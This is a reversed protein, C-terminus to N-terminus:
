RARKKGRFHPPILVFTSVVLLGFAIHVVTFVWQPFDYFILARMLRAVFSLNREVGQGALQRLDYEWVTLPCDIGTAAELAVLAVAALHSIRFSPLRIAGWRCVAGLLIFAQGGVAFLVYLFHIAVILDASLGYFAKMSSMSRARNKWVLRHLDQYGSGERNM